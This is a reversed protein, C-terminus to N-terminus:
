RGSDGAAVTSGPAAPAGLSALAAQARQAGGPQFYPNIALARTLHARAADANGRAREIMGAHYFLMADQTGLALAQAMARAAEDHRAEKYSAWALLDYGYIDRRTRLEERVMHAVKAVHRDHDLLFLSWARHYAGPQGRVAIEFTRAYESSRTSDGLAGYADSLTGLTAPDLTTAIAEEGAAIADRWRGQAAASRALASLLRYDGPHAALGSAYASDAAVARGMRLEIDGTRMWFWAKQENPVSSSRLAAALAARQLGLARQPKGELEAWRSLRPSVALDSSAAHIAAFSARASDYQGLEMEIEGVTARLSASEPAEDRLSKAIALAEAFRHQSLLSSALVQRAQSNHAGRNRISRRSADEAAIADRPDGTERSRQLLLAGVHALDMAGTPDREARAQYYAIDLDRIESESRLPVAAATSAPPSKPTETSGCALAGAAGALLFVCRLGVVSSSFGRASAVSNVPSHQPRRTM